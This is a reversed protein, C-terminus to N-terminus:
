TAAKMKQVFGARTLRADERGEKWDVNLEIFYFDLAEGEKVKMAWSFDKGNKTFAGSTSGAEADESALMNEKAEWIKEDAWNQISLRHLYRAFVDLSTLNSQYVMVAGLSLISVTLVIEILTFGRQQTKPLVM